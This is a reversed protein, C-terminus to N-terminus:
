ITGVQDISTYSKTCHVKSALKSLECLLGNMWKLINQSAKGEQLDAATLTVVDKLGLKKLRENLSACISTSIEFVAM